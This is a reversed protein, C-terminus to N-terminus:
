FCTQSFSAYSKLASEAAGAGSERQEGDEAAKEPHIRWDSRPWQM